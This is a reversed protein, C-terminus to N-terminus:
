QDRHLRREFRDAPPETRLIDKDKVEGAVAAALILRIQIGLVFGVSMVLRKDNPVRASRVFLVEGVILEAADELRKGRSSLDNEEIRAEGSAECGIQSRGAAENHRRRGLIVSRRDGERVARRSGKRVRKQGPQLSFRIVITVAENTNSLELTM